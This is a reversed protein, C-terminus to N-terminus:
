QIPKGCNPCFKPPNQPDPIKYGCEPCFNVSRATKAPEEPKKTGCDSCFNGTNVKGCKPCTWSGAAGAAAAFGGNPAGNVGAGQPNQSAAEYMKGVNMGTNAGANQAMGFGMFGTLAGNKNKAAEKMAEAQAGVLTAAAMSQDKLAATKQMEKIMDEDEDSATISSVGFSVIEIGRLDKWKGSLQQNLSDALMSTHAPVASYRVGKASIDAFAPQLATLLETRLQDSIQSVKYSDRFNGSVNTYFLIPNSVRISYEGFCRVEIDVDLNAHQDVVRFPVPNATGYKIGPIEKMNFYYVRQDTAPQGGFTFRKGIESFVQKISGGLKGAFVSPQTSADYRYEGPEACVEAVKGNDVILMCQGDAVAVVSGTTIINDDGNNSSGSHVRRQGRVAITDAPISESYFYDKWQDALVQSTGSEMARILGM